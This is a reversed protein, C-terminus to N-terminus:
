YDTPLVTFSPLDGKYNRWEVETDVVQASVPGSRLKQLLDELDSRVGEALVEVDGNMRNRVWGNIDLGKVQSLVFFRFGVGQVIGKVTVHMRQKTEDM